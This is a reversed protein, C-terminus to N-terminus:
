PGGHEPLDFSIVQCGKEAVLGAFREAEEKCSAKGHVFVYVREAPAGWIITPIGQVSLKHQQM